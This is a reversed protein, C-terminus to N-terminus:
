RDNQQLNNSLKSAKLLLKEHLEDTESLLHTLDGDNTVVETAIKLRDTRSAQISLIQKIQELPWGNRKEVRSIQTHEPCDVVVIEHMWDSWGGKEALLPVVVVVYHGQAQKIETQAQQRILPHLISELMARAEPENTLNNRMIQRNMRGDAEISEPGFAKAVQEIAAGGPATLQHAIVDTDVITAGLQDLRDSVCSKGSGIGGTLGVILRNTPNIKLNAM